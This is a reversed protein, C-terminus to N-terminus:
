HRRNRRASGSPGALKRQEDMCHKLYFRAGALELPKRAALLESEAGDHDGTQAMCAALRIQVIAADLYAGLQRLTNIALRFLDTAEDCNGQALYLEGRARCVQAKVAGASWADPQEDLKSLTDAACILDGSLAAITARHALYNTRKEGAIWHTAESARQLARLAAASQGRYHLLMAYGPNPDWGHERAARYASEAREFEARALHLDGLLRQADGLAWPASLRLVEDGQNIEMQARTLEGRAALVEARRLLCSGHFLQMKNRECWRSFSDNWQGARQLEGANCYGALLGCYVIGGIVPSVNGSVVAAAAEGQLDLGQKTDGSAQLAVGVYLKGMAELDLSGMQKGIAISRHAHELALPIDGAVIHFRASLWALHGHQMGTPLNELLSAAHRLCGKTVDAERLEMQVRALTLIARAAGEANAIASYGAASRELPAVAALLRGACLAAIAWSELEEAPLPQQNDAREFEEFAIAWDRNAYANRARALADSSAAPGSSNEAMSDVCFRYGRRAYTRIAEELGGKRLASRALSIARQLSADTVIVGPWIASLLEDKDIVRDHNEVLFALMSFVRPQLTVARGSLRLEHAGRDLEFDGFRTINM